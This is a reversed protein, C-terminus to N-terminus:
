KKKAIEALATNAAQELRQNMEDKAAQSKSSLEVSGKARVIHQFLDLHLRAREADREEEPFQAVLHEAADFYAKVTSEPDPLTKLSKWLDDQKDRFEYLRKIYPKGYAERVGWKGIDVGKGMYASKATPNLELVAAKVNEWIQSEGPGVLRASRYKGMPDSTGFAATAAVRVPPGMFPALWARIVDAGAEDADALITHASKGHVFYEKVGEVAEIAGTARLGRSVPHFAFPSWYRVREKDDSPGLYMAGVPVGDAGDMRGWRMYNYLAVTGLIVGAGALARRSALSKIGLVNFNIGATIFQSVGTKRLAAMITSQARADYQGLENVFNRRYEATNPKQGAAIQREALDKTMLRVTTDTTAIVFSTARRFL